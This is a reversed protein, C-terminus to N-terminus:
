LVYSNHRISEIMKLCSIGEQVGCEPQMKSFFCNLFYKMEELYTDAIDNRWAKLTNWQGQRDMESVTGEIGDWRIVGNECVVICERHRGFTLFDQILTIPLGLDTRLHISSFDEVDIELNGIKGIMSGVHNLNGFLWSLYDIDHSLELLVGGGLSEKASVSERYDTNPRWTRLDQGVSARVYYIKGYGGTQVLDKFYSLSNSFRLNYGVLVLSSFNNSCDQIKEAQHLSAAIPKEILFATGTHALESVVDAHFPSPNAVITIDPNFDVAEHLHKIIPIGNYSDGHSSHNTLLRINNKPYSILLNNLHRLGIGGGVVVVRLERLDKIQEM